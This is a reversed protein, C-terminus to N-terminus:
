VKVSHGFLTVTWIILTIIIKVILAVSDVQLAHICLRPSERVDCLWCVKYLSIWLEMVCMWIVNFPMERIWVTSTTFRFLCWQKNVMCLNSRRHKIICQFSNWIWSSFLILLTSIHINSVTRLWLSIERLSEICVNWPVDLKYCPKYKYVVFIHFCFPSFHASTTWSFSM